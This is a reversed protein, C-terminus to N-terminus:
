FSLTFGSFARDNNEYPNLMADESSASYNIFGAFLVIEDRYAYDLRARVMSAPNELWIMYTLNAVLDDNLMEYELNAVGNVETDEEGLSGSDSGIRSGLLEFDLTLNRVGSYRGGVMATHSWGAVSLEGSAPTQTAGDHGALFREGDSYAYEGKLLWNGLVRNVSAGFLSSQSYGLTLSDTDLDVPRAQRSHLGSAFLAMDGWPRSWFIRGAIDPKLLSVDPSNERISLSPHRFEIYPDFDGHPEDYLNSRFEHLAVLDIGWRSQYYSLRTSAIPLLTESLEALGFAREDTPNIRDAIQFYSSEGLSVVQRGAKINFAPTVGWEVYTEDVYVESGDELKDDHSALGALQLTVNNGARYQAELYLDYRISVAGTDSRRFPLQDKQETLAYHYRHTLDGAFGLARNVKEDTRTPETDTQEFFDEAVATGGLLCLLVSAIRMPVRM